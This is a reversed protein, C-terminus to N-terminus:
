KVFKLGTDSWRELLDFGFYVLIMFDAEIDIGFRGQSVGFCDSFVNATIKSTWDNCCATDVTIVFLIIRDREVIVTMLVINEDFFCNRGNFEDLQKHLMDRLLMIFHDAIITDICSVSFNVFFEMPYATGFFLLM